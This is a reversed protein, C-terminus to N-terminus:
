RLVNISTIDTVTGNAGTGTNTGTSPDIINIVETGGIEVILDRMIGSFYGELNTGDGSGQAGFLMTSPTSATINPIDVQMDSIMIGNLLGTFTLDNNVRTVTVDYTNCMQAYITVPWGSKRVGWSWGTGAITPLFGATLSLNDPAAVPNLIRFSLANFSSLSGSLYFDDTTGATIIDSENLRFTIVQRIQTNINGSGDTFDIGAVRLVSSTGNFRGAQAGPQVLCTLGNRDIRDLDLNNNIALQILDAEHYQQVGVNIGAIVDASDISRLETIFFAKNGTTADTILTADVNTGQFRYEVAM